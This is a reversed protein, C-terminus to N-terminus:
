GKTKMGCTCPFELLEDHGFKGFTLNIEKIILDSSIGMGDETMADLPLQFYSFVLEKGATCGQMLTGHTHVNEADQDNQYM